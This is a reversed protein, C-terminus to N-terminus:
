STARDFTRIGLPKPSKMSKKMQIIAVTMWSWPLLM